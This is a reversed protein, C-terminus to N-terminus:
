LLKGNMLCKEVIGIEDSAVIIEVGAEFPGAAKGSKIKEIAEVIENRAMKEVPGEIANTEVIQDWESEETMIKKTHEKWTKARDKGIFDLRGNRGRLCRGGELDKGKKKMKKFFYFVSNCNQYLDNLEPNAEMRMARAVIKRTQNRLRKYQTKNEESPFRCLKKFTAKKRSITDKVEEIWWWM